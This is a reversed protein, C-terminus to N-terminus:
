YTNKHFIAANTGAEKNSDEIQYEEKIEEADIRM